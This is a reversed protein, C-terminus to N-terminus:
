VNFGGAALCVTGNAVSEAYIYLGTGISTRPYVHFSPNFILNTGTLENRLLYVTGGTTGCIITLNIPRSTTSTVILDSLFVRGVAGSRTTGDISISCSTGPDCNRWWGTVAQSIVQTHDLAM